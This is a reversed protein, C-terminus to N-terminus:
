PQDKAPGTTTASAAVISTTPQKPPEGANRWALLIFAILSIIAQCAPQQMQAIADPPFLNTHTLFQDVAEILFAPLTTQWASVRSWLQSWIFNIVMSM